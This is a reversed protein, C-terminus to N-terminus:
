GKAKSFYCSRNRRAIGSRPIDRFWKRAAYKPKRPNIAMFQKFSMWISLGFQTMNQIKSLSVAISSMLRPHVELNMSFSSFTCPYLSLIGLWQFFNARWSRFRIGLIYRIILIKHEVHFLIFWTYLEKVYQDAHTNRGSPPRIDCFISVHFRLVIAGIDHRPCSM